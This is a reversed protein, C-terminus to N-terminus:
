NTKRKEKYNMFENSIDNIELVFEEIADNLIRKDVPLHEGFFEKIVDHNDYYGTIYEEIRFGLQYKKTLVNMLVLRLILSKPIVNPLGLIKNKILYMSSLMLLLDVETVFSDIALKREFDDTLMISDFVTNLEEKDALLNRVGISDATTETFENIVEDRDKTSIGHIPLYWKILEYYTINKIESFKQANGNSNKLQNYGNLILFFNILDKYKPDLMIQAIYNHLEEFSTNGLVPYLENNTKNYLEIYHNKLTIIDKNTLIAEILEKRKKDELNFTNYAEQMDEIKM